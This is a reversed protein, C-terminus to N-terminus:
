LTLLFETSFLPRLGNRRFAHFGFDSSDYGMRAVIRAMISRVQYCTIPLIGKHTRHSFLPDSKQLRLRTINFQLAKVLCLPQKAIKSYEFLM